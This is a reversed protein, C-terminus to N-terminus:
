AASEAGGKGTFATAQTKRKNREAEQGVSSGKGTARRATGRMGPPFTTLMLSKKFPM